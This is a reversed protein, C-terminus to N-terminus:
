GCDPSLKMKVVESQGMEGGARQRAHPVELSM